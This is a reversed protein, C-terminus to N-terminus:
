GGARRREEGGREEQRGPSIQLKVTILKMEAHTAKTDDRSTRSLPIEQKHRILSQIVSEQNRQELRVCAGQIQSYGVRQRLPNEM